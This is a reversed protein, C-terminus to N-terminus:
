SSYLMLQQVVNVATSTCINEKVFHECDTSNKNQSVKLNDEEM